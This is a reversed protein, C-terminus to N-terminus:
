IFLADSLYDQVNGPLLPVKCAILIFVHPDIRQITMYKDSIVAMMQHINSDFALATLFSTTLYRGLIDLDTNKLLEPMQNKIIGNKEHYLFAGIIEPIRSLEKLFTDKNKINERISTPIAYDNLYNCLRCRFVAKGDQIHTKKLENKEGCDECFLIMKILFYPNSENGFDRQFNTQHHPYTLFLHQNWLHSM